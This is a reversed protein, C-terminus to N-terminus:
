KKKKKKTKGTKNKDKAPHHEEQAQAHIHVHTHQHVEKKSGGFLSFLSAGTWGLQNMARAGEARLYIIRVEDWQMWVCHAHVTAFRGFLVARPDDMQCTVREGLVKTRVFDLLLNKGAGPLSSFLVAVRTPESPRQVVSALYDLFWAGDEGACLVDYVHREFAQIVGAEAACPPLRAAALGPWNNFGEDSLGETKSPDFFVRPITRARTDRLWADVFPVPMLRAQQPQTRALFCCGVLAMRVERVSIERMEHEDVLRGFFGDGGVRMMNAEIRARVAGYRQAGYAALETPTWRYGAVSRALPDLYDEDLALLEAQADTDNATYPAEFLTNFPARKSTTTSSTTPTPTSSM